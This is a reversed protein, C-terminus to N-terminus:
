CRAPDAAPWGALPSPRIPRPATTRAPRFGFEASSPLFQSTIELCEVPLKALNGFHDAITREQRRMRNIGVQRTFVVPVKATDMPFGVFRDGGRLPDGEVGQAGLMGGIEHQPFFLGQRLNPGFQLLATDPEHHEQGASVPRGPHNSAPSAVCDRHAGTRAAIFNGVSGLAARRNVAM